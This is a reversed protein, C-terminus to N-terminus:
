KAGGIKCILSKEDKGLILKESSFLEKVYVLDSHGFGKHIYWVQYYENTNIRYLDDINNIYTINYGRVDLEKGYKKICLIKTANEKYQCLNEIEKLLRSLEKKLEIVTQNLDNIIKEKGEKEINWHEEIDRKESILKEIEKQFRSNEQKLNGIEIKKCQLEEKNKKNKAKVEILENTLMEVKNELEEYKSDDQTHVNQLDTKEVVNKENDIEEIIQIIENEIENRNEENTIWLNVYYLLGESINKETVYDVIVETIVHYNLKNNNGKTNLIGIAYSRPVNIRFNRKKPSFGTLVFGRSLAWYIIQNYENEDLMTLVLKILELETM